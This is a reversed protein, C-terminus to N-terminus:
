QELDLALRLAAAADRHAQLAEPIARGMKIFDHVVGRYVVEEAPVDAARLRGAWALGDDRIPDAEAVGVWAPALGRVDAHVLPAFRWDERDQEYRLYQTFFWDIHPREILYGRAYEDFAPQVGHSSTGPYFLLQLKLLLGSDRAAIACAAALTGGASDGGVAVREIDLGYEGGHAFVWQVSDFADEFAAPFKHEPALRYGVSLVAAGSLRALQRCLSDHTDISGVTFGGGHFYVLVPVPAFAHPVTACYLRAACTGSLSIAEVHALAARPLDLVEATREYAAKAEHAPLQWMRPDDSQAKAINHLLHSMKPTLAAQLGTHQRASM